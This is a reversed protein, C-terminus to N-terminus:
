PGAETTTYHIAYTHPYTHRTHHTHHIYNTLPSYPNHRIENYEGTPASKWPFFCMSLYCSTRVDSAM